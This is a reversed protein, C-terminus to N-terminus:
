GQGSNDADKSRSRKILYLIGFILGCVLLIFLIDAFTVNSM